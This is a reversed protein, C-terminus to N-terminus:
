SKLLGDQDLLIRRKGSFSAFLTQEAECFINTSAECLTGKQNKEPFSCFKATTQGVKPLIRSFSAFLTQEAECLIV